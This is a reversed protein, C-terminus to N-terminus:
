TSLVLYQLESDYQMSATSFERCGGVLRSLTINVSAIRFNNKIDSTPVFIEQGDSLSYTNDPREAQCEGV